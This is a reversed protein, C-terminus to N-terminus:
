RMFYYGRITVWRNKETTAQALKPMLEAQVAVRAFKFDRNQDLAYAAYAASIAKAPVEDQASTNLSSLLVEAESSLPFTVDKVEGTDGNGIKVLLRFESCVQPAFYGYQQTAPVTSCISRWTGSLKPLKKNSKQVFAIADSLGASSSYVAFAGNAALFLALAQLGRM